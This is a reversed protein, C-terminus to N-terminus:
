SWPQTGAEDYLHRWARMYCGLDQWQTWQCGVAEFQRQHLPLCIQAAGYAHSDTRGSSDCGANNIAGFTCRSERMAVAYAWDPDDPFTARVLQECSSSSVAPPPSPELVATGLRSRGAQQMPQVGAANWQAIAQGAGRVGELVERLSMTTTTVSRGRLLPDVALQPRDRLGTPVEPIAVRREESPACGTIALVLVFVLFLRRV